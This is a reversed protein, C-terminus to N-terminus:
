RQRLAELRQLLAPAVPNAPNRAIVGRLLQEALDQRAPDRLWYSALAMSSEQHLLHGHGALLAALEAEADGHRGLSGRLLARLERLEPDACAVWAAARDVRALAAEAAAADFPIGGYISVRVPQRAEAVAGARLRQGVFTHVTFGLWAALLVVAWRGARSLRGDRKLVTHQFTLERRRWLRFALLAFVATIVGLGVALLLPVGEGFWAGRFTWQAAVFAIAALAIEEPWGFDARAQIRQQSVAFPKPMALGVYLADKPCVSVCDLCKMCGPDVLQRHKAVEEHVRVNSTCVSTCHGCADCASTVKIRVPAVRDALTFLAGYPCGYTCFGKAGLWWVILFGVVLITIPAMIWKPFTRWLDDTVLALQWDAVAPMPKQVADLWHEVHPWLFMHGAVVWPTLVLLRSRVPRPKLGIRGLLWACLDQLAVIHCAWGCFWRGFVLTSAILAVFLLFGANIRGLEFTEMAESPEVPTVSSGTLAWHLFHLGILVHVGILVMARKGGVRSKRVPGCRPKHRDPRPLAAHPDQRPETAPRTATM